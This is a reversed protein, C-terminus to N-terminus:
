EYRAPQQPWDVLGKCGKQLALERLYLNRDLLANGETGDANKFDVMGPWVLIALAVDKTDESINKKIKEAAIHTNTRYEVAKQECTMKQDTSSKLAVPIPDRTPVCGALMVGIAVCTMAKRM